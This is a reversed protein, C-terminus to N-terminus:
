VKAVEALGAEDYKQWVQWGVDHAIFAQAKEMLKPKAAGMSRCGMLHGLIFSLRMAEYCLEWYADPYDVDSKSIADQLETSRPCVVSLWRDFWGFFYNHKGRGHPKFLYEGPAGERGDLFRYPSVSTFLDVMDTIESFVAELEKTRAAAFEAATPQKTKKTKKAAM